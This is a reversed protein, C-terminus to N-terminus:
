QKSKRAVDIGKRAIKIAIGGGPVLLDITEAGVDFLFEPELIKGMYEQFTKGSAELKGTLADYEIVADKGKSLWQYQFAYVPRYYLDIRKVEVNDELIRDATISKIMGILVERVVASARAQPPVTIREEGGFTDLKEQPIEIAPFNLYASLSADEENTLGDIFIDNQYEELCHEVGSLTIQGENVQYEMGEITVTKVEPGSMPIPFKKSRQYVYRASCEIHWFPQYRHEKYLLKFDEDKPRQLLGTIRVTRGFAEIKKGWARGEAQEISLQERLFFAKEDVLSIDM